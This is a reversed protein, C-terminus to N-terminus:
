RPPKHRRWGYAGAGALGIGLLTWTAPEPIVGTQGAPDARVVVHRGDALSAIFAIQGADNLQLGGFLSIDTVTSGFLPDGIGLVRDATPDPGTFIGRGGTDLLGFFAVQGQNNLSPFELFRFPGDIDAIPLIAGGSALFIGSGGADTDARFAVAGADNISLNSSFNAFPGASDVLTTVAGGGATLIGRGGVPQTVFFAAVTGANNIEPNGFAVFQGGAQVVPTVPGGSGTFIVPQGGQTALFAVTGADNIAPSLGLGGLGAPSIATVAGGGTGTFIRVNGGGPNGWFAVTGSSNISTGSLIFGGGGFGFVPTFSAISTLPGGSGRFVTQSLGTSSQVFAVQGSNNISPNFFPNVFGGSAQAINTFTYSTPDARGGAPLAACLGVVLVPTLHRANM